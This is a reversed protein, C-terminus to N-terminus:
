AAWREIVDRLSAKTFPKPLMDDMGLAAVRRRIDPSADASVAVIPLRRGDPAALADARIAAALEYGDMIPMNLDALVLAVGTTRLLSVAERGDAAFLVEYPLDRTQLRITERVSATDEVVLVRRCTAPAATVATCLTTVAEDPACARAGLMEAEARGNEPGVWLVLLGHVAAMLGPIFPLHRSDALVVAQPRRRTAAVLLARADEAAHVNAGAARLATLVPIPAIAAISLGALRNADSHPRPLM